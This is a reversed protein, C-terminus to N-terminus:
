EIQIQIQCNYNEINFVDNFVEVEIINKIKFKNKLAYNIAETFKEKENNKECVLTIYKGKPIFMVNKNCKVEKKSKFGSFVYLSKLKGSSDIGYIIGRETSMELKEAKAVKELKSYYILEKLSGAENCETVIVQREDLTEIKLEKNSVLINADYITKDLNNIDDIISNLENIKIRAEMSRKKLFDMLQSTDKTRFIEKLEKISTGLSRCGKIIDIYVFQNITYYRYGSIEDIYAPTLIGVKHYYRLAKISIEKIKSVEGISFLKNMNIPKESNSILKINVEIFKLKIDIYLELM